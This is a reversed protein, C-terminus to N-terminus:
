FYVSDIKRGIDEGFFDNGEEGKLLYWSNATQIITDEGRPEISIIISSKIYTGPTFRGALDEVVEGFVVQIKDLSFESPISGNSRAEEEISGLTHLRWNSIIGTLGPIDRDNM